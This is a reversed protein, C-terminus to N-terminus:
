SFGNSNDTLIGQAVSFLKSDIPQKNHINIPSHFYLKKRSMRAGEQEKSDGGAGGAGEWEM